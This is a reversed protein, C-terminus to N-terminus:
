MVPTSSSGNAPARFPVWNEAIGLLLVAGLAVMNIGPSMLMVVLFFSLALRTFASHAPRGLFYFVIGLGQALYLVACVAVVNWAIIEAITLKARTFVLVVLLSFSLIWVLYAPTYFTVVGSHPKVKRFIASLTVGVQRNIFFFFIMCAIGGGRIAVTLSTTVMAELDTQSVASFGLDAMLTSIIRVQSTMLSQFGGIGAIQYFNLALVGFLVLAGIIFRYAGNLGRFPPAIIWAFIGFTLAIFGCNWAFAEWDYVAIDKHTVFVAVIILVCGHLVVSALVTLWMSKGNYGFAVFGLPALFLLTLAGGMQLLVVSVAACVLVPVVASRPKTACAPQVGINELPTKPM